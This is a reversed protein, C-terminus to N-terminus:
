LIAEVVHVSRSFFLFLEGEVLATVASLADTTNEFKSFAKLKLRRLPFLKQGSNAIREVIRCRPSVYLKNASEASEFNKYIDDPNKLTSDDTMKFLAYGAATEYLVLMEAVQNKEFFM